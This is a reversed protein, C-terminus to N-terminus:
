RSSPAAPLAVRFGLNSWRSSPHGWARSASRCWSADSWVSGGRVVRVSGAEPGVPDIQQELPYAGYWDACWEWANGHMDHLGWPNATKEGVPHAWGGVEFWAVRELDEEFDGTSYITTMGARCAYEWQAETPLAGGASACMTAADEWAVEVIPEEVADRAGSSGIMAAQGQTLEHAAIYFASLRVSHPREDVLADADFNAATQSSNQGGMTFEGGPVLVVVVGSDQRIVWKNDSENWGPAEGTGLLLFYWLRESPKDSRRQRLPMLDRRPILELGTYPHSRLSPLVENTWKSQWADVGIRRLQVAVRSARRRASEIAKGVAEGSLALVEQARRTKKLRQRESAAAIRWWPQAGFGTDEAALRSLSRAWNDVAETPADSTAILWNLENDAFARVASLSSTRDLPEVVVAEFEAQMWRQGQRMFWLQVCLFLLPPLAVFAWRKLRRRRALQKEKVAHAAGLAARQDKGADLYGKATPDVSGATLFQDFMPGINVDEPREGAEAWARATQELLERRELRVREADIILRLADWRTFLIEHAIEVQSEDRIVALSPGRERDIWAVPWNRPEQGSLALLLDQGLSGGGALEVAEARTILKRVPPAGPTVRVLGLLLRWGLDAWTEAGVATSQEASLRFESLRAFFEDAQSALAGGVGGLSEYKAASLERSSRTQADRWLAGLASALLPVGGASALTDSALRAPLSEGSACPQWTLKARRAPEEISRLLAPREMALLKLEHAQSLIACLRPLRAFQELFDLRVTTVLWVRADPRELAECLLEDLIKLDSKATAAPEADDSLTFLEEFQDIVLLLHSNEGLQEVREEALSAIRRPHKRLEAELGDISLSPGRTDRLAEYLGKALKRLPDRGPRILAIPWAGAGDFVEGRRVRPTLGARVLSSKGAGSAGSVQIWRVKGREPSRLWAMLQDSEAERGFYFPEDAEDFALLGPFPPRARREDPELAASRASPEPAGPFAAPEDPPHALWRLVSEIHAFELCDIPEIGSRLLENRDALDLRATLLYHRPPAGAGLLTQWNDLVLALDPDNFSHGVFLLTRQNAFATLQQFYKPDAFLRNYADKTLVCHQPDDARGHLHFVFPDSDFRLDLYARSDRPTLARAEGPHLKEGLALTLWPDYNTTLFQRVPLQVLARYARPRQFKPSLFTDAIYSSIGIPGVSLADHLINAAKLYEGRRLKEDVGYTARESANMRRTLTALMEFWTPLRDTPTEPLGDRESPVNLRAGPPISLGAGVVPLVTTGDKHLKARLKELARRAAEHEPASRLPDPLDTPM